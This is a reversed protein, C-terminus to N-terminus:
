RVGLRQGGFHCRRPGCLVTLQHVSMGILTLQLLGRQGSLGIQAGDPLSSAAARPGRYPLAM